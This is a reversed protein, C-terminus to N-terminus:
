YIENKCTSRGVFAWKPGIKLLKSRNDVKGCKEKENESKAKYNSLNRKNRGVKKHLYIPGLQALVARFFSLFASSEGYVYAM